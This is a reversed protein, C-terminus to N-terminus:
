FGQAIDASTVLAVEKLTMQMNLAPVYGEQTNVYGGDPTYNVQFSEIVCDKFKFLKIASASASSSSALANTARNIRVFEVKLRSPVKLYRREGSGAFNLQQNIPQNGAAAAGPAAGGGAQAGGGPVGIDGEYSPLMTQKFFKVISEIQTAETRNRAILKFDFQHTRFSVGQFIQEEYPNFVRGQSVAALANGDVSGAVGIAQNLGTIAEGVASFAAEPAAGAAANKLAGAIETSNTSGLMQAAMIGGVGFATQNYSTQYSAAINAPMYLLVTDGNTENGTANSSGSASNGDKFSDLIASGNYNLAYAQFKIYDVWRTLGEGGPNWSAGLEQLGADSASGVPAIDPYRFTAM